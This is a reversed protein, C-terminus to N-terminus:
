HARPVSFVEGLAAYESGGLRALPDLKAADIRLRGNDDQEALEDAVYLREVQGLVLRQTGGVIDHVEFRRCAFALRCASLRPLPFNAMPTTDLGLHTVESHGAALARGSENVQPALARHAIHV